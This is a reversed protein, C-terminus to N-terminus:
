QAPSVGNPARYAKGADHRARVRESWRMVWGVPLLLASLAAFIILGLSKMESADEGYFSYILAATAVLLFCAGVLSLTRAIDPKKSM